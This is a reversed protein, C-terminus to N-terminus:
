RRYYQWWYANCLAHVAGETLGTDHSHQLHVPYKTFNDPFLAWNIEAEVVKQIPKSFLSAKCFYCNWHQLRSYQERVARRQLPTLQDYMAPLAVEFTSSPNSLSM